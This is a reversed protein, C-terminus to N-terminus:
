EEGPLSPLRWPPVPQQWPHQRRHSRDKLQREVAQFAKRIARYPDFEASGNEGNRERSAVVTKGPKIAEVLVRIGRPDAHASRHPTEVVVRCAIIRPEFRALRDALDRVLREMSATPEVGKFALDLPVRM